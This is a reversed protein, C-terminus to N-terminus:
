ERGGERGRTGGAVADREAPPLAQAIRLAAIRTREGFKAAGPRGEVRHPDTLCDREGSPETARTAVRRVEVRAGSEVEGPHERM